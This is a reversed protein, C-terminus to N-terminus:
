RTPPSRRLLVGEIRLLVDDSIFIRTIIGFESRKLTSTASFALALSGNGQQERLEAITVDIILPRPVGILTLIGVVEFSTESTQEIKTSTFDIKPFKVSNFFTSDQILERDFTEAFPFDTRLSKPDITVALAAAGLKAPDIDLIADFNTFRATYNSLSPNTVKWRLSSRTRDLEYVGAELVPQPTAPPAVLHLAAVALGFFKFM